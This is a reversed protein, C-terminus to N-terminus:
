VSKWPLGFVHTWGAPPPYGLEKDIAAILFRYKKTLKALKEICEDVEGWTPVETLRAKEYHAFRKNAAKIVRAAERKLSELDTM